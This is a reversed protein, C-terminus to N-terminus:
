SLSEPAPLAIYAAQEEHFEEDDTDDSSQGPTHEDDADRTAKEEAEEDRGSFYADEAEQITAQQLLPGREGATLFFLALAPPGVITMRQAHRLNDTQRAELIQVHTTDATQATGSVRASAKLPETAYAATAASVSMIQTM